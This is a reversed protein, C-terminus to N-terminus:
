GLHADFDGVIHQCNGALRLIHSIATEFITFYSGNKPRHQGFLIDTGITVLKLKRYFRLLWEASNHCLQTHGLQAPPLSFTV